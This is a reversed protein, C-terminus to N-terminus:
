KQAAEGETNETNETNKIEISDTDYDWFRQREYDEKWRKDM